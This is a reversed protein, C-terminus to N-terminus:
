DEGAECLPVKARRRVISLSPPSDTHEMILLLNLSILNKKQLSIMGYHIICFSEACFGLFHFGELLM